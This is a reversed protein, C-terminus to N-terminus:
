ATANPLKAKLAGAITNNGEPQVCHIKPCSRSPSHDDFSKAGRAVALTLGGGGAPSFIHHANLEELIEYSITEVGKMGEACYLYASVPLSLGANTAFRHLTHFVKETVVADKGFGKVEYVQAGYLQMQLLKDRPAGEEAIIMCKIGAAGCYAALA